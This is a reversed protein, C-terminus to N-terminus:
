IYYGNLANERGLYYPQTFRNNAIDAEVDCINNALMINAICGITPISVIFILLFEVVNLNLSLINNAYALTLIM